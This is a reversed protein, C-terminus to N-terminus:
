ASPPPDEADVPLLLLLLAPVGPSVFTFLSAMAACRRCFYPLMALLVVGGLSPLDAAAPPLVLLLRELEAVAEVAAYAAVLLALLKLAAGDAGGSAGISGLGSGGTGEAARAEPLM